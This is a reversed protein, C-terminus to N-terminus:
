ADLAQKLELREDALDNEDAVAQGIQRREKGDVGADGLQQVSHFSVLATRGCREGISWGHLGLHAADDTANVLLERLELLDALEADDRAFEGDLLALEGGGHFHPAHAHEFVKATVDLLQVGAFFFRVSRTSYANM